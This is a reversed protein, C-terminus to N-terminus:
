AVAAYCNTHMPQHMCPSGHCQLGLGFMCLMFARVLLSVSSGAHITRRHAVSQAGSGSGAARASKGGVICAPM